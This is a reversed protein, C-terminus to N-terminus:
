QIKGEEVESVYKTIIKVIAALVSWGWVLWIKWSVDPMALIISDIIPISYLATDGIAKWKKPTQRNYNSLSINM